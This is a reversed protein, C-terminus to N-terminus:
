RGYLKHAMRPSSYKKKPKQHLYYGGKGKVVRYSKSVGRKKIEEGRKKANKKTKFPNIVKIYGKM